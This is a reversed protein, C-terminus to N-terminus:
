GTSPSRVIRRDVGGNGAHTSDHGNEFLVVGVLLSLDALVLLCLDISLLVFGLCRSLRPRELLQSV